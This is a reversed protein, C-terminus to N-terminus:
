QTSPSRLNTIPSQHHVTEPSSAGQPPVCRPEKNAAEVSDGFIRPFPTVMVSVLRRSKKRFADKPSTATPATAVTGSNNIDTGARTTTWGPKGRRPTSPKRSPGVTQRGTLADAASVCSRQAQQGTNSQHIPVKTAFGRVGGPPDTGALDGRCRDRRRASRNWRAM